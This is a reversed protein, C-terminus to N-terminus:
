EKPMRVYIFEEGTLPDEAMIFAPPRGRLSPMDATVYDDIYVQPRVPRIRFEM